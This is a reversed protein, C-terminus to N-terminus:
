KTGACYINEGARATGGITVCRIDEGASANGEINGTCEVSGEATVSGSVSGCSVEGDASVNGGVDGCTVGDGASVSGDVNGCSVSDGATVAGNVSGCSVSDGAKVDGSVSGCNVSDGAKVDGGVAGCVVGDGATVNGSITTNTCAVGFYSRVDQVTGEFNLQVKKLERSERSIEKEELLKHGLFCVARLTEDNEWPLQLEPKAAGTRGFLEDLTIGFLDALLPLQMIDPCCQDGEWKSVAQNTIGLRQALSEQTMGRERRLAAIRQGFYIQEM